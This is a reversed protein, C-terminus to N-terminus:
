WGPINGIGRSSLAATHIHSRYQSGQDTNFIEPQPFNDLAYNLVDMVLSKDITNSIRWSLVAKSYWDIVAALYVTEGKIKIYTIDTLWVQNV